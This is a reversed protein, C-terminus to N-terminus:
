PVTGRLANPQVMNWLDWPIRRQLRGGTGGRDQKSGAIGTSEVVDMSNTRGNRVIVNIDQGISNNGGHMGSNKRGSLWRWFRWGEWHSGDDVVDDM